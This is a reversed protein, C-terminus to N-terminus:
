IEFSCLYPPQCFDFLFMSLQPQQTTAKAITMQHKTGMLACGKANKFLHSTWIYEFTIIHTYGMHANNHFKLRGYVVKFMKNLTALSVRWWGMNIVIILHFSSSTAHCTIRRSLKCLGIWDICIVCWNYHWVLDFLWHLLYSTNFTWHYTPSVIFWQLPM